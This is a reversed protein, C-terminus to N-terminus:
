KARGIESCLIRGLPGLPWRRFSAGVVVVGTGNIESGGEGGEWRSKRSCELVGSRESFSTMNSWPIELVVFTQLELKVSVSHVILASRHRHKQFRPPSPRECIGVAFRGNKMIFDFQCVTCLIYSDFM